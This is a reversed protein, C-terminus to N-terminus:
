IDFELFKTPGLVRQFAFLFLLTQYIGEKPATAGTCDWPIQPDQQVNEVVAATSLACKRLTLFIQM